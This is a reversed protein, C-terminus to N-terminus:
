ALHGPTSGFRVKPSVGGGAIILDCAEGLPTELTESFTGSIAM